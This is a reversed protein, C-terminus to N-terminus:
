GDPVERWLRRVNKWRERDMDSGLPTDEPHHYLRVRADSEFAEELDSEIVSRAQLPLKSWNASSAGFPRAKGTRALWETTTAVQYSQRGICYRVADIVLWSPLALSASKDQQM